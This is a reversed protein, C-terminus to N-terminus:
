NGDCSQASRGQKHHNLSLIKEKVAKVAGLSNVKLARARACAKKGKVLDSQNPKNHNPKFVQKEKGLGTQGINKEVGVSVPSGVVEKQAWLNPTKLLQQLSSALLPGNIDRNPSLKCKVEKGLGANHSPQVKGVNNTIRIRIMM